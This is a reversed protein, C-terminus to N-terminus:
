YANLIIKQQFSILPALIVNFMQLQKNINKKSFSIQYGLTM